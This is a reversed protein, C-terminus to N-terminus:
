VGKETARKTTIDIVGGIAESGYLASQSGKLVEIRGIDMTTLSGFDYAVQPGSPDTVDIGDVRVAINTQSVGRITMGTQSGIPGQTLVNVGPLRALYDVARTEETKKLDDETVIEVSSGSRETRTEELNASATVKDLLIVDQAQAAVPALVALVAGAAIQSSKM